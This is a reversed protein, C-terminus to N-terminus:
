RQDAHTEGRHRALAARGAPTIKGRRVLKSLELEQVVSAPALSSLWGGYTTAACELVRVQGSTLKHAEGM